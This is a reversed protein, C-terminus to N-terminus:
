RVRSIRIDDDQGDVRMKYGFFDREIRVDFSCNRFPLRNAEKQKWVHGNDFYFLYRGSADRKCNTVTGRVPTREEERPEKRALQEEGVEDTLVPVEEQPAAAEVPAAAPPQPEPAPGPTPGPAPEPAPEPAPAPPPEPAPEPAPASVPEQKGSAADYCALREGADEIASCRALEAADQAGAQAAALLLTIM